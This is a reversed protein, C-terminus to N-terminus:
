RYNSFSSEIEQRLRLLALLPLILTKILQHQQWNAADSNATRLLDDMIAPHFHLSWDFACQANQYINQEQLLHKLVHRSLPLSWKWGPRQVLTQLATSPPMEPTELWWKGLEESTLAYLMGTHGSGLVYRALYALAAPRYRTASISQATSQLLTWKNPGNETEELFSLIKPWPTATWVEWASPHLMAILEALWCAAHTWRVHGPEPDLEYRAAVYPAQFFADTQVPLKWKWKEQGTLPAKTRQLYPHLAAVTQSFLESAPHRLLLEALLRRLPRNAQKKLAAPDLLETYCNQLFAIEEIDTIPELIRVWECRESPPEQTWHQRIYQFAAQPAQHRWHRLWRRRIAGTSESVSTADTILYLDAWEPHQLALWQGRAGLAPLLADVSQNRRQHLLWDLTDPLYFAPVVHRQEAAKQLLYRILVANRVPHAFLRQWILLSGSPWERGTETAAPAPLTPAQEAMRGARERVWALASAALFYYEPGESQQEALIKKIPEELVTDPNPRKGGESLALQLLRSWMLSRASINIKLYNYLFHCSNAEILDNLAIIYVERRSTKHM